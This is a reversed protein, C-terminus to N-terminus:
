TQSYGRKPYAQQQIFCPYKYKISHKEFSPMSQGRNAWFPWACHSGYNTRQNEKTTELMHPWSDTELITFVDGFRSRKSRIRWIAAVCDQGKCHFHCWRSSCASNKNANRRRVIQLMIALISILTQKFRFAKGKTAQDCPMGHGGHHNILLVGPM